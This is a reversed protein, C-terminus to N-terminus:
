WHADSKKFFSREVVVFMSGFEQAQKWGPHHLPLSAASAGHYFEDPVPLACLGEWPTVCLLNLDYM